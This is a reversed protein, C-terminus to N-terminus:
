GHLAGKVQIMTLNLEHLAWTLDRLPRKADIMTLHSGRLASTVQCLTAQVEFMPRPVYFMLRNSGSM